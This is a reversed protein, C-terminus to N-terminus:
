LMGQSLSLNHWIKGFSFEWPPLYNDHVQGAPSIQSPIFARHDYFDEYSVLSSISGRVSSSKALTCRTQSSNLIIFFRTRNKYLRMVFPSCLQKQFRILGTCRYPAEPIYPLFTLPYNSTTAVNPAIHQFNSHLWVICWREAKVSRNGEPIIMTVDNGKLFGKCFIEGLLVSIGLWNHLEGGGIQMIPM